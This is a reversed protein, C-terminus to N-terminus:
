EEDCDLLDPDDIIQQVLHYCDATGPSDTWFWAHNRYRQKWYVPGTWHQMMGRLALERSSFVFPWAGMDDELVVVWVETRQPAM